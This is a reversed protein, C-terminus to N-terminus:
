EFRLATIPDLRAARQAPYLGFVIGVLGAFLCGLVLAPPSVLVPWGARLAIVAAAASGAIAGILGGGMALLAAETLFQRRIDSQRAGLAMRLGIERTRETVSVLMINMISIGGVVLAVSAVSLLLYALTRMAQQRALLVDAPNEITFDDAADGRLHHRARLLSRMQQAVAAIVDPSSVKALIMDVADATGRAAAIRSRATALPIFVVDDQSRGAAGPGKSELVGIITFPVTGIRLAEGLGSHGPFLEDRVVSGIIAVKAAADRDGAAFSRGQAIRWERAALYDGGIGAILTSWNRDEAVVQMPRSVLPAAIRIGPVQQALAAADRESLTRRTGAARRVGGAAQAGPRVVLLNAGLSRIKDAVAARAGLGVSVMCIVAAVAVLMGLATLFSRLPNVGLAQLAVRLTEAFRV